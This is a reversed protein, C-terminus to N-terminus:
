KRGHSNLRIDYQDCFAQEQPTLDYVHTGYGDYCELDDEMGDTFGVGHPMYVEDDDSEDELESYKSKANEKGAHDSVERNQVDEKVGKDSEKTTGSLSTTNSGGKSDVSKKPQWHVKSNPKPLRIGDFSRSADGKNKKRRKVEVFGEENDKMTSPKVAMFPAKPVEDEVRIVEKIHGDGDEEPIAMIVEKKLTSALSIEILARAFSIRGYHQKINVSSPNGDDSDQSLAKTFMDALQYETRVFYLEIIDRKVHKKIFHYCGNIHKTRSHQAPNSSIEIALQSDCYLPIRNYDFGYDKLQTRMWVVQACSASLAVYEAEATSMATCDQKKSM